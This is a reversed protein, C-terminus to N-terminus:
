SLSSFLGRPTLCYNSLPTLRHSLFFEASVLTLLPPPPPPAQSAPASIRGKCSTIFVMTVCAKGRCDMSTWPPSSIWRCGTSAPPHRFSGTVGHPAWVPAPEQWSKRVRASHLGHRLLNAPLAQSGTLVWAPPAQEQLIAGQPFSGHQPLKHLAAARPFSERQLLKHLVTEWSLFRLSSCPCLKLLGLLLLFPAASVIHSSSVTVGM